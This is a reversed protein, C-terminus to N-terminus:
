SPTGISRSITKLLVRPGALCDVKVPVAEACTSFISSLAVLKIGPWQLAAFKTAENCEDFSLTHCLVFATLPLTSPLSTLEALSGVRVVDYQTAIVEGRLILLNPDKSFCLVLPRGNM